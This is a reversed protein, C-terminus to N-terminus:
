SHVHFAGHLTILKGDELLDGVLFFVIVGTHSGAHCESLFSADSHIDLIMNSARFRITDDPNTALYDLLDSVKQKTSTIATTQEAALSSLAVLATNDVVRAYQLISGIIQQIRTISNGDLQLSM